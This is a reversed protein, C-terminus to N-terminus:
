RRPPPGSAGGRGTREEVLFRPRRRAEELARWLYQGLLGSLLAQFGALGVASVVIWAAAPVVAGRLAAAGLAPLGLAALATLLAGSAAIWRLPRDGVATFSDLALGVKKDLTWGSRGHLRPPADYPLEDRRFGVSAIALNLPLHTEPFSRIADAAVRDLLWYGAAAAADRPAGLVRLLVHYLRSFARTAVTEGPRRRRQALVVQAGARWRALLEPLLEPPDQLDAALGVICRGRAEELGCRRAAHSGVNRSLRVGRVRPDAAATRAVWAFTGDASHDDVVIWEWDEGDRDLVATLREYLVPLNEAEGYASTVLSVVPGGARDTAAVAAADTM